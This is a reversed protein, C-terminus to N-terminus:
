DGLKHKWICNGQFGSIEEWMEMDESLELGDLRCRQHTM